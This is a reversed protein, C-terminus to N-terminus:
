EYNAENIIRLVFERLEDESAPYKEDKRDSLNNTKGNYYTFFDTIAMRVVFSKSKKLLNSLDKLEDDIFKNYSVSIQEKKIQESEIDMISSIFNNFDTENKCLTLKGLFMLIATNVVDSVSSFYKTSVLAEMETKIHPNIALSISLKNRNPQNM